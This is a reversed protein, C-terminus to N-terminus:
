SARAIQVARAVVAVSLALAMLMSAATMTHTIGQVYAMAAVGQAETALVYAPAEEINLSPTERDLKMILDKIIQRGARQRGIILAMATHAGVTLASKPTQRYKTFIVLHGIAGSGEKTWLRM